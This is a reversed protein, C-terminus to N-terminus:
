HVSINITDNTGSEIELLGPGGEGRAQRGRGVLM